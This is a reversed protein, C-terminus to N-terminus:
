RLSLRSDALLEDDLEDVDVLPDDPPESDDVEDDDDLLRLLRGGARGTRGAVRTGAGRAGCGGSRCGALPTDWRQSVAELAVRGRRLTKPDNHATAFRTGHADGAHDRQKRQDERYTQRPRHSNEHVVVVEFGDARCGQHGPFRPSCDFPHEGPEVQQNRLVADFSGLTSVVLLACRRAACVSRLSRSGPRRSGAPTPTWRYRVHRDAFIRSRALFRVDGLRQTAPRFWWLSFPARWINSTKVGVAYVSPGSRHRRARVQDSRCVWSKSHRRHRSLALKRSNSRIPLLDSRRASTTSRANRRRRSTRQVRSGAGDRHEPVRTGAGDRHESVRTGADDRHEPVRTGAGHRHEPVRTRAGDRHKRGSTRASRRHPVPHGSLLRGYMGQASAPAATLLGVAGILGAVVFLSKM